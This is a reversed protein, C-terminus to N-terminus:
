FKKKLSKKAAKLDKGVLKPLNKKERSNQVSKLTTNTFNEVYEERLSEWELGNEM